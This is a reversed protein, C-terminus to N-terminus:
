TQVPSTVPGAHPLAAEGSSLTCSEASSWPRTIWFGEAVMTSQEAIGWDSLTWTSPSVRIRLTREEGDYRWSLPRNADEPSPGDCGFPVALEFRRGILGSIDAPLQVQSALADAARGVLAILDARALIRPQEPVPSAPATPLPNVVVQPPTEPSSARGALFGATAIVIAAVLSAAIALRSTRLSPERMELKM